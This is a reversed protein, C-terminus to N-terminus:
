GGADAALAEWAAADTLAAAARALDRRQSALAARADELTAAVFGVTSAPPLQGLIPHDATIAVAVVPYGGTPQHDVLLVIPRGDAPLQVAGQVTPTTLRDGAGGALAPGVLRLGMRDSAPDVQWEVGTLRDVAGPIAAADPGPVLRVVSGRAALPHRVDSPWTALPLLAAVPRAGPAAATLVDGAVMPRGDLGGFGASLATSRSGLVAPVDFGGPVALYSRAGPEGPVPGDFRITTGAPLQWARGPRLVTTAGGPGTASGGLDAGALALHLPEVVRLEPGVLTLELAAAGPDNGLLLNAAALSWRDAAGGEPVGLHGSGPRGGDQVTTLAGPAVVELAV